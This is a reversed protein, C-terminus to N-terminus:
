NNGHQRLYWRIFKATNAEHESYPGPQYRSSLIGAQNDETIKKDQLTTVDWVFILNDVDYDKGDEAGPHVFWTLEVDTSQPGRPTFRFSLAHDNSGLVFSMPNFSCVTLGGDFDKFRGMLKAVPEGARTESKAGGGIPLRMANGEVDFEAPMQLFATPHGLSQANAIWADLQAQVAQAAGEPGSGPGAGYALLLEPPHVACYEPHAPACHYCELFNEVVLKWNATTSYMRKAAVKADALEHFAMLDIHQAYARDFDIPEDRGINLFIFGERVRIHCPHLGFRAPEFDAPMLRAAKLSGDLNYSWAHYPCVLLRKNGDSESCVRSGRHRCVNFFANVTQADQRIIIISEQAIEFLFYDGPNPIRSAHDILLWNTAFVRQIDQEFVDADCYLAQELSYGERQYDFVTREAVQEATHM